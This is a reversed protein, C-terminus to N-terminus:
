GEIIEQCMDTTIADLGCGFSTLQVFELDESKATFSAARYLRAHYKWQNEVRLKHDMEGLHSISDETLVAMGNMTILEPIGHNVEPDIHYPHGALVIGK